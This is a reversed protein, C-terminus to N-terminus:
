GDRCENEGQTPAPAGPARTEGSEAIARGVAAEFEDARQSGILLRKGNHLKLQLGRNGSVNYAWGGGFGFRIGWGGYERLPRYTRAGYEEIEDWTAQRLRLQFPVFRYHIGDARVETVLHLLWFWLNILSYFLAMLSRAMLPGAKPVTEGLPPAAFFLDFIVTWVLFVGVALVPLLVFAWLWWQRFRQEERFLVEGGAAVATM